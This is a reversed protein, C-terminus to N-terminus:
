RHGTTPAPRFMLQVLNTPTTIYEAWRAIVPREIAAL